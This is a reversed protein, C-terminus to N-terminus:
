LRAILKILIRGYSDSVEPSLIEADKSELVERVGSSLSPPNLSKLVAAAAEDFNEEGGDANNRRAGEEVMAKFAKKEQYSAPPKGEHSAKWEELFHLLLLLYPIHGHEHDSLTDLNATKTKMFELLEPWPNLLRLDQTSVPDPHTDVIPFKTPLQVSFQSYFGVSHIYFLPISDGAYYSLMELVRHDKLPGTLLILTFRAWNEVDKVFDEISQTADALEGGHPGKFVTVKEVARGKVEPNLENLYKSCEEARSKGLSEDTLFFNVGLDIESVKEEDVITFNGVGPLILNKLTEVGVIGPGSNLLLVSAEELAQQGSAAWLRLQRDYKKEKATPGQLIPPTIPRAAMANKTPFNLVKSSSKVKFATAKGCPQDYGRWSRM